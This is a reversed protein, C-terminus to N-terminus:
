RCLSETLEIRRGQRQLRKSRRAVQENAYLPGTVELVQGTVTEGNLRRGRILVGSPCDRATMVNFKSCASYSCTNDPSDASYIGPAEETRGADAAQKQEGTTSRYRDHFGGLLALMLM